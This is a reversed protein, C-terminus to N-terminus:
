PSRHDTDQPGRTALARGGDGNGRRRRWPWTGRLWSVLETNSSTPGHRAMGDLLSAMGYSLRSGVIAAGFGIVQRRPGSRATDRRWDAGAIIDVGDKVFQESNCPLVIHPQGNAELLSELFLIDAGCAASAYGFGARIEQLQECIAMRVAPELWPPFRPVERDADDILHGVFVVVPPIWLWTDICASDADLRRLILRANRRTSAFDGFRQGGVVAAERYRDEAERWDRLILAAEGLTSLM